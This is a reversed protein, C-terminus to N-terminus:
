GPQSDASQWFFSNSHFSFSAEIIELIQVMHEIGGGGWAAAPPFLVCSEFVMIDVDNANFVQDLLIVSRPM